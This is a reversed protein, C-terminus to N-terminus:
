AGILSQGCVRLAQGNLANSGPQAFLAVGEAVDQPKGGQSLSNMRRGVERTMFPIDDTMQTEIFGPAIANITRGSEGWAEAQKRVYGVVGSKSAAYNTQGANGAIGSISSICIIRAKDSLLDQQELGKNVAIPALLNINLTMDWFHEPMRALTKDRTVGANHVIIDLKKGDLAAAIDTVAQESTIDTAVAIGKMPALTAVLADKTAPIDLGIVTAGDRSLTAAIAAGIGQAAGTILAIQGALPQKWDQKVPMSNNLYLPQGTIYTSRDSLFFNIVTSISNTVSNACYLLNVTIGKRGLEKALSRTFGNLSEMVSAQQVDTINDPNCGIIVIRGSKSIRKSAQSFFNKLGKLDSITKYETADLLMGQYIEVSNEDFIVSNITSSTLAIKVAESTDRTVAINGKVWKDGSAFRKLDLPTKVGLAAMLTQGIKSYFLGEVVKSM